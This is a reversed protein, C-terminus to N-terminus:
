GARRFEIVNSREATHPQEPRDPSDVIELLLKAWADLAKRKDGLYDNVDYVATVAAAGGNDSNHAIVRSVVFRPIGIRESTMNTAGTRRFDHATADDIQLTAMMRTVARSMAQATMPQEPQDEIARAAFVFIEGGILDRADTLINVALDSLPVIHTKRGKMRAAPITWLRRRLDIESWKAGIVEGIRGLTVVALRVALAMEPSLDLGKVKEPARCARWIVRLEGDSIVRERFKQPIVAIAQAPNLEIIEKWVAYNGIQRLVARVTRGNAPSKRSISTVVEQIEVRRIERFPRKGLGKRIFRDFLRKEENTTSAAKPGRGNPRHLGLEADAFYQDAIANLSNLKDRKADAAARREIAIIDKGQAVGGKVKRAEERARALGVAPFSGLSKRRHDGAANVYRVSWTRQGTSTVRLVLGREEPDRVELRAVGPPPLVAKLYDTSFNPM